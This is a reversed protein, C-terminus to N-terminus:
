FFMKSLYQEKVNDSQLIVILHHRDDRSGSAGSGVAEAAAGAKQHSTKMEGIIGKWARKSTRIAATSLRRAMAGLLIAM